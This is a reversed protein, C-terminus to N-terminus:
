TEHARLHTYSVAVLGTTPGEGILTDGVKELGGLTEIRVVSPAVKQVAARFAQEELEALDAQALAHTARAVLSLAVLLVALRRGDCVRALFRTKSNTM